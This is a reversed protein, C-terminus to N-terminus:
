FAREIRKFHRNKGKKFCLTKKEQFYGYCSETGESKEIPEHAANIEMNGKAFLRAM